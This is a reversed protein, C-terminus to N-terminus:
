KATDPWAMSLLTHNSSFKWSYRYTVRARKPRLGELTMCHMLLSGLRHFCGPGASLYPSCITINAREFSKANQRTGGLVIEVHLDGPASTLAWEFSQQSPVRIMPFDFTEDVRSAVLEENTAKKSPTMNVTFAV